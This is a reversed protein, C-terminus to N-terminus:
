DGVYESFTKEEIVGIGLQTVELLDVQAQEGQIYLDVETSLEDLVKNGNTTIMQRLQDKNFKTDKYYGGLFYTKGGGPTFSLSGIYDDKVPMAGRKDAAIMEGTSTIEHAEKILLLGKDVRDGTISINFVRFKMNKKVGSSSGLNVVVKREAAYYSLIRGQPPPESIRIPDLLNELRIKQRVQELKSEVKSLSKATEKQRKDNELLVEKERHLLRTKEQEFNESLENTSRDVNAIDEQLEDQIEVVAKNYIDHKAEHRKINFNYLSQLEAKRVKEEEAVLIVSAQNRAEIQLARRKLELDGLKEYDKQVKDKLEANKAAQEVNKSEIYRANGLQDYTLYSTLAGTLIAAVM